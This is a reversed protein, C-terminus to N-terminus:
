KLLSLFSSVWPNALIISTCVFLDDDFNIKLLQYYNCAGCIMLKASSSFTTNSCDWRCGINAKPLDMEVAGEYWLLLSHHLSPLFPVTLQDTRHVLSCGSQISGLLQSPILFSYAWHDQTFKHLRCLLIAPHLSYGLM